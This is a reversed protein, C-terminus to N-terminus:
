SAAPRRRERQVDRKVAGGPMVISKPAEPDPFVVSSRQRAPRVRGSAPRMASRRGRARRSSLRRRRRRHLIAVDAVDKLLRREKRVHRDRSFMPYPRCRTRRVLPLPADRRNRSDNRM